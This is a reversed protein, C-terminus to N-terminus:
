LISPALKTGLADNGGGPTALCYTLSYCVQALKRETM